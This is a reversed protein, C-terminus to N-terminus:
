AVLPPPVSSGVANIARKKAKHAANAMKKVNERSLPLDFTPPSADNDGESSDDKTLGLIKAVAERAKPHEQALDNLFAQMGFAIHGDDGEKGEKEEQGTTMTSSPVPSPPIPPVNTNSNDSSSSSPAYAPPPINTQSSSGATNTISSMRGDLHEKYGKLMEEVHEMLADRKMLKETRAKMNASVGDSKSKKEKMIKKKNEFSKVSGEEITKARVISRTASAYSSGTGFGLEEEEDDDNAGGTAPLPGAYAHHSTTDVQLVIPLSKAVLNGKKDFYKLEFIGGQKMDTLVNFNVGGADVVGDIPFWQLARGANFGQADPHKFLGVRDHSDYEHNPPVSFRVFVEQGPGVHLPVLSTQDFGLEEANPGVAHRETINSPKTGPIGPHYTDKPPTLGPIDPPIVEGCLRPCSGGCDVGEEDGNQLEDDCRAPETPKLDTSGDCDEGVKCPESCDDCPEQPVFEAKSRAVVVSKDCDDECPPDEEKDQEFEAKSKAVVVSDKMMKERKIKNLNVVAGCDAGDPCPPLDDVDQANVVILDNDINDNSSSSDSSSSPTSEVKSSTDDDDGVNLESMLRDVEAMQEPLLSKSRSRRREQIELLSSPRITSRQDQLMRYAKASSSKAFDLVESDDPEGPLERTEEMADQLIRAARVQAAAQMRQSETMHVGSREAFRMIDVSPLSMGINKIANLRARCQNGNTSKLKNDCGKGVSSCVGNGSEDHCWVCVDRGAVPSDGVCSDCSFASSCIDSCSARRWARVPCSDPAENSGSICTSTFECWGCGIESICDGCNQASSCGLFTTTTTTTTSKPEEPISPNGRLRLGTARSIRKVAEDAIDQLKSLVSVSEEEVKSVVPVSGRVVTV